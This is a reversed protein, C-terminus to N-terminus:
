FRYLMTSNRDTLCPALSKNETAMTVSRTGRRDMSRRSGAANCSTNNQAGYNNGRVSQSRVLYRTLIAQSTELIFFFFFFLPTKYISPPCSFPCYSSCYIISVSVHGRDGSDSRAGPSVVNLAQWLQSPPPTDNLQDINMVRPMHNNCPTDSLYSM